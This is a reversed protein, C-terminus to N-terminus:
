LELPDADPTPAPPTRPTPRDPGTRTDRASGGSVALAHILKTRRHAEVGPAASSVATGLARRIRRVSAFGRAADRRRAAPHVASNLALPRPWARLAESRTVLKQAGVPMIRAGVVRIGRAM